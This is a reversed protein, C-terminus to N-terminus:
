ETGEAYVEVEETIDEPDPDVNPYEFDISDALRLLDGKPLKIQEPMKRRRPLKGWLYFAATNGRMEGSYTFIALLRQRTENDPYGQM